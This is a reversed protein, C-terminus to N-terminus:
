AKEDREVQLSDMLKNFGSFLDVVLGIGGLPGFKMRYNVSFNVLTSHGSPSLSSETRVYKIPGVNEVKRIHSQTRRELRSARGRNSPLGYVLRRGHAEVRWLGGLRRAIM